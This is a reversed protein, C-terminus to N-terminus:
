HMWKEYWMQFMLLYWIKEAREKKGQYFSRMIETVADVKFLGQKQVYTPSLYTEALPKLEGQLWDAIPIAFGM